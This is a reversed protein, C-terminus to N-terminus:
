KGCCGCTEQEEEGCCGPDFKFVKVVMVEKGHM